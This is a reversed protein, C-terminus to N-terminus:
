ANEIVETDENRTKTTSTDNNTLQQDKDPIFKDLMETKLNRRLPALFLWWPKIACPALAHWTTRARTFSIFIGDHECFHAIESRKLQHKNFPLDYIVQNLEDILSM